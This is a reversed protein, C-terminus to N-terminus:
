QASNCEGKAGQARSPSPRLPHKLCEHPFGVRADHQGQYFCLKDVLSDCSFFAQYFSSRLAHLREEVSKDEPREGTFGRLYVLPNPHEFDMLTAFDKEIRELDEIEAHIRANVKTTEIGTIYGHVLSSTVFVMVVVILATIQARTRVEKRGEERLAEMDVPSTGM